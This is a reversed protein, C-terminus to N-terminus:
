RKKLISEMKDTLFLVKSSRYFGSGELLGLLLFFSMGFYLLRPSEPWEDLEGPMGTVGSSGIFVLFTTAWRMVLQGAMGPSIRRLLYGLYTTVTLGAFAAMGPLGGMQAAFIFYMGLLSWFGIRQLKRGRGTKPEASSVLMMFPFSHIVLVEIGMMAGLWRRDLFPLINLFSLPFCFGLVFNPIAAKLDTRRSPPAEPQRDEPPEQRM